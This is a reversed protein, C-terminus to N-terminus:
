YSTRNMSKAKEVEIDPDSLCVQLRSREEDAHQLMKMAWVSALQPM